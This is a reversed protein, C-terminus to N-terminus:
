CHDHACASLPSFRCWLIDEPTLEGPGYWPISQLDNYVFTEPVTFTGTDFCVGALKGYSDSNRHVSM